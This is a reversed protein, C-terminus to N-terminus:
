KNLIGPWNADAKAILAPIDKEWRKQIDGNYNLYLKGNVIKWYKPDGKATNGQSAAWACYGGYQPAFKEPDAKFATLDEASAFRWKAGRYDFEFAPTGPTPAGTRFYAVADFGGIALNSAIGTYIAPKAAFAAPASMVLLGGTIGAAILRKIM